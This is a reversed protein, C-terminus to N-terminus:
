YISMSVDIYVDRLLRGYPSGVANFVACFYSNYCFVCVRCVLPVCELCIGCVSVRVYCLYSFAVSYICLRVVLSVVRQSYSGQVICFCLLCLVIAVSLM